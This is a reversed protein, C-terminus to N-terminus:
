PLMTGIDTFFTYVIEIDTSTSLITCKLSTLFQFHPNRSTKSMIILGYKYRPVHKFILKETLFNVILISFKSM